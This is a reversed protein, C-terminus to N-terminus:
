KGGNYLVCTRNLVDEWNYKSCIFDSASKGYDAAKEENKLLLALKEKLDMVNGKQFSCAKDEVVEMNEAINSVLCCNGYSMAELLSIAMGEVDSPLVFM